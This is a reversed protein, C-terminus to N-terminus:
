LYKRCVVSHLHYGFRKSAEVLGPRRTHYEIVNCNERQALQVLATQVVRDIQCDVLSVVANINLVREPDFTRSWILTAVPCGEHLITSAFYFGEAVGRAIWGAVAPRSDDLLPLSREANHLAAEDLCRVIEIQSLTRM